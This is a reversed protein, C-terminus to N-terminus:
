ALAAPLASIARPPLLQDLQHASMPPIEDGTGLGMGLYFGQRGPRSLTVFSMRGLKPPHRDCFFLAM